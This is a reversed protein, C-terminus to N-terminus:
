VVLCKCCICVSGFWQRSENVFNEGLIVSCDGLIVIRKLFFFHKKNLYGNSCCYFLRRDLSDTSVELESKHKSVLLLSYKSM